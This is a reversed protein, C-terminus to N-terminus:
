KVPLGDTDTLATGFEDVVANPPVPWNVNSPFSTQNTINRLSSRYTAWQNKIAPLLPCDAIQTWDTAQLLRARINRVNKVIAGTNLSVSPKVVLAKIVDANTAIANAPLTTNKITRITDSILQRLEEGEPYKGDKVFLPLTATQSEFQITLIGNEFGVIEYTTM